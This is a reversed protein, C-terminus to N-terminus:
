RKEKENASMSSLVTKIKQTYYKQEVGSAFYCQKALSLVYDLNRCWEYHTM